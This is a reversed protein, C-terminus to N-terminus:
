SFVSSALIAVCYNMQEVYFARAAEIIPSGRTKDTFTDATRKLM